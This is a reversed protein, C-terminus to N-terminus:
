ESSIKPPIFAFIDRCLQQLADTESLRSQLELTRLNQRLQPRIKEEHSFLNLDSTQVINLWNWFDPMAEIVASLVTQRFLQDRLFNLWVYTINPKYSRLAVKLKKAYNSSFRRCESEDSGELYLARYAKFCALPYKHCRPTKGLFEMMSAKLDPVHKQLHPGYLNKFTKDVLLELCKCVHVTNESSWLPKLCTFVESAHEAAKDSSLSTTLQRVCIFRRNLVSSSEEDVHNSPRRVERCVTRLALMALVADGNIFWEVTTHLSPPVQTLRKYLPLLQQKFFAVRVKKQEERYNPIKKDDDSIEKLVIAFRFKALKLFIPFGWALELEGHHHLREQIQSWILQRQSKHFKFCVEICTGVSFRSSEVSSAFADSFIKKNKYVVVDRTNADLCAFLNLVFDRNVRSSWSPEHFNDEKAARNLVSYVKEWFKDKAREFENYARDLCSSPCNRSITDVVNEWSFHYSNVLTDFKEPWSHDVVSNQSLEDALIERSRKRRGNTYIWQGINNFEITALDKQSM